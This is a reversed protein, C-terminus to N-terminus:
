NSCPQLLSRPGVGVLFVALWCKFALKLLSQLGNVGQWGLWGPPKALCNRIPKARPKFGLEVVEERLWRLKRM